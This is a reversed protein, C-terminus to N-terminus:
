GPPAPANLRKSLLAAARRLHEILVPLHHGDFHAAYGTISVGAVVDGLHDRVPFGISGAGDTREGFSLAYGRERILRIEERLRGPDTITRATARFLPGTGIIREIEADPLAALLVKPGAGLHLAIRGGVHLFTVKMAHSGEIKELCLCEDKDVVNLHASEGTTAALERLVPRAEDRLSVRRIILSGLEFLKFSLKYRATAPDQDVYGRAKLADLIRHATSSSFGVDSAIEKLSREAKGAALLEMIDLGRELSHVRYPPATKITM